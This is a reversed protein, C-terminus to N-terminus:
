NKGNSTHKLMKENNIEKNKIKYTYQTINLTVKIYITTFLNRTLTM